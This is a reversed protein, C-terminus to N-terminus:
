TISGECSSQKTCWEPSPNRKIPKVAFNKSIRSTKRELWLALKPLLEVLFECYPWQAFYTSARALNAYQLHQFGSPYPLSLGASRLAKVGSLHLVDVGLTGEGQVHRVANRELLM